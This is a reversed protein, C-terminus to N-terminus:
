MGHDHCLPPTITAVVTESIIGGVEPIGWAQGKETRPCITGSGLRHCYGMALAVSEVSFYQIITNTKNISITLREHLTVLM